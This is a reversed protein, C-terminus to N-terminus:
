KAGGNLIQKAFSLLEEDAQNVLIVKDIFYGLREKLIEEVTEEVTIQASPCGHCNGTLTVRVIRDIISNIKIDGGHIKLQPRIFKEVVEEVKDFLIGKMDDM